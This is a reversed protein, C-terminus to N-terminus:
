RGGVRTGTALLVCPPTEAFENSGKWVQRNCLDSRAKRKAAAEEVADRVPEFTHAHARASFFHPAFASSARTAELLPALTVAGTALMAPLMILKRVRCHCQQMAAVLSSSLRSLTLRTARRVDAAPAYRDDDFTSGVSHAVFQRSCTCCRARV